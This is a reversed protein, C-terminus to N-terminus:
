KTRSQNGKSTYMLYYLFAYAYSQTTQAMTVRNKKRYAYPPIRYIQQFAQTFAQQSEYGSEYAIDIITHSTSALKIAAQNMRMRKIYKYITEKKEKVFVRNLYYKSYHFTEELHSLSLDEKMHMGIYDSMQNALVKSSKNQELDEKM